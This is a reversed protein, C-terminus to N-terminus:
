HTQVESFIRSGMRCKIKTPWLKLLNSDPFAGKQICYEKFMKQVYNQKVQSKLKKRSSIGSRASRIKIYKLAELSNFIQPHHHYFNSQLVAHFSECADTTNLLNHFESSWIETPCISDENIYTEVLYDCFEDLNQKQPKIAMLEDIFSV